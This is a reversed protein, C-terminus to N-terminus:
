LKCTWRSYIHCANTCISQMSLSLLSIIMLIIVTDSVERVGYLMSSKEAGSTFRPSSHFNGLIRSQLLGNQFFLFIFNWANVLLNRKATWMRKNNTDCNLQVHQWHSMILFGCLYCRIVHGANELAAQVLFPDM